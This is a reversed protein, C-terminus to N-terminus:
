SIRYGFLFVIKVIIHFFSRLKLDSKVLVLYRTAFGYAKVVFSASDQFYYSISAYNRNFAFLFNYVRETDIPLM